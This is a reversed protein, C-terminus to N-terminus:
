YTGEFQYRLYTGEFRYGLYTGEIQYGLYTGEFQYGLYTGEFQYGLYTPLNMQLMVPHKQLPPSACLLFAPPKLTKKTKQFVFLYICGLVFFLFFQHSQQDFIQDKLPPNGETAAILGYNIVYTTRVRTIHDIILM